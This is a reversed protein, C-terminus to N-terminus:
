FATISLSVTLPNKPLAGSCYDEVRGKGILGYMLELLSYVSFGISWSFTVQYRAQSQSQKLFSNLQSDVRKILRFLTFSNIMFSCLEIRFSFLVPFQNLMGLSYSKTAFTSLIVTTCFGSYSRLIIVPPRYGSILILFSPVSSSVLSISAATCNFIDSVECIYNSIITGCLRIGSQTATPSTILTLDTTAEVWYTFDM